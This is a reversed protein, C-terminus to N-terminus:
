PQPKVPKRQAMRIFRITNEYKRVVGQSEVWGKKMQILKDLCPNKGNISIWQGLICAPLKWAPRNGQNKLPVTHYAYCLLKSAPVGLIDLQVVASPTLLLGIWDQAEGYEYAEVLAPGFYLNTARDAYFDDCSLAGRVPIDAMILFYAFWRAVHDIWRFSNASEDESYFVFTDSFWVPSIKSSAPCRTMANEVSKSLIGFVQIQGKSQIQNRFGLLDFYALWRKSKSSSDYILEVAMALKGNFGIGVHNQPCNLLSVAKM